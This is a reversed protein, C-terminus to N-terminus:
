DAGTIGETNLNSYYEEKEPLTTENFKEWDNMYEYPYVPKRLLTIFKNNNNNNNNNNNDDINYSINKQNYKERTRKFIWLVKEYLRKWSIFYTQKRHSWIGLNEPNNTCEDWKEILSEIDVYIIYPVKDSKMFQNFEIINDIESLM